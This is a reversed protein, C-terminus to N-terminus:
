LIEASLLISGCYVDCTITITTGISVPLPEKFIFFAGRDHRTSYNELQWWYLVGEVLGASTCRVEIKKSLLQTDEEGLHLFPFEGSCIQYEFTSIDIDRYELLNYMRVPSLDVGCSSSQQVRTLTSLRDSSVLVGHASLRDTLFGCYRLSPPIDDRSRLSHLSNLFVESVSGDARIPWVIICLDTNGEDVNPDTTRDIDKPDIMFHPLNRVVGTEEDNLDIDLNWSYKSVSPILRSIAYLLMDNNMTRYDRGGRSILERVPHVESGSQINVVIDFRTGKLTWKLLVVQGQCVRMPYPLPFIGQEWCTSESTDIYQNGWILAKFHVSVAHLTGSTAISVKLVGSVGSIYRHLDSVDRFDVTFMEQPPSLQVADQLESLRTCWYPEPQEVIAM